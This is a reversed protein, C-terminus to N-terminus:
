VSGHLDSTFLGCTRRIEIQVSIFLWIIFFLGRREMNMDKIQKSMFLRIIAFSGRIEGFSLCMMRFYQRMDILETYLGMFNYMPLYVRVCKYVSFDVLAWCIGKVSIKYMCRDYAHVFMKDCCEYFIRVNIFVHCNPRTIRGFIGSPSINLLRSSGRM